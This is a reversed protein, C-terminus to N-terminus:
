EEEMLRLAARVQIEVGVALCDEDIDFRCNHLDADIGESFDACGLHWFCAPREQAFYSFDETGLDPEREATVHDSGLVQCATEKVADVIRDDNILAPYSSHFIVEATSGYAKATNEAMATLRDRLFQRTEPDLSRLIGDMRLRDCIINGATGGQIKGVTCVAPNVPSLNRSVLTQLGALVAGAAVMVDNGLDPHAGHCSKGNLVIAFEDSAAMMNGYRIGVSGAEYRSSVHLGLVYDVHPNELCGAEIMRQAGGTTEEAPQFFFKVNGSLEERISSFVKAAGFLVTIHADHVCAHIVGPTQSRYPVDNAEEIPLADMDARIGVTKGPKEGRVVAVIGTGAIGRKYEVGWQDLYRCIQDSTGTEQNSLEPHSHFYRRIEKLEEKMGDILLKIENM